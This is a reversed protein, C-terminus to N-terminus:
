KMDELAELCKELIFLEIEENSMELHQLDTIRILVLNNAKFWEDQKRDRLYGEYIKKDRELPSNKIVDLPRNLGHWYVGDYQLYCSLSIIYFDILRRDVVVQDEVDNQGFIECLTEKFTRERQSTGYTRNKKQTQKIQERIEKVKFVNDIGYKRLCTDKLKEKLATSGAIPVKNGWREICTQEKKAKVEPVKMINDVGYKELCTKKNGEAIKIKNEPRKSINDVGYKEIMTQKIQERIEPSHFVSEVGFKELCTQRAKAKVEETSSPNSTGYKEICTKERKELVEPKQTHFSVGHTEKCLRSQREYSAQGKRKSNWYCQMQCFHFDTKLRYQNNKYPREVIKKCHTCEFVISNGEKDVKILM